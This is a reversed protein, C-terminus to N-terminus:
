MEFATQLSTNGFISGGLARVIRRGSYQTYM